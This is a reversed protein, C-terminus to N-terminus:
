FANNPEPNPQYHTHDPLTSALAQLTAAQDIRQCRRELAYRATCILVGWMAWALSNWGFAAWMRPDM